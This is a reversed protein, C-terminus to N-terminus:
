CCGSERVPTRVLTVKDVNPTNQLQTIISRFETASGISHLVDVCMHSQPLCSHNYSKIDLTNSHRVEMIKHEIGHQYHIILHGEIVEEDDMKSLDGRQQLDAFHLAADRLFKSRNQYGSNKILSELSDAFPKDVSFSIIQSM